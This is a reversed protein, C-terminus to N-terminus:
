RKNKGIIRRKADEIHERVKAEVRRSDKSKIAELLEVHEDYLTAFENHSYSLRSLFTQIQMRIINYFKTIRRNGSLKVMYAHFLWDNKLIDTRKKQDVSEKMARVISELYAIDAEKLRVAAQVFAPVELAMRIEYIERWDDETFDAVFTGKRPKIVLLGEHELMQLAERLSSRSVGFEKALEPELLREGFQLQADWIRHRLEDAIIHSLPPQRIVTPNQHM